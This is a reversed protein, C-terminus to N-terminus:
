INEKWFFLPYKRRNEAREAEEQLMQEMVRDQRECNRMYKEYTPTGADYGFYYNSWDPM